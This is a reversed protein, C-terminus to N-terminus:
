SRRMMGVYWRLLDPGWVYVLVGVPALFTGFPLATRRGGRGRAVLALGAVSGSLSALFITMLLGPWGLFAGLMAALKVDGGGMGEVGTLKHYGWGLGWLLGYGLAAGVIAGWLTVPTLFSALIGLAIGPLTIVDPIIRHDWDILTVVIMASAFVLAPVLEWSAGFRWALGLYILATIAEVVPYRASIRARCSRCRGGLWLWALVPVNDYPAIPTGCGPCSSPPFVVSRGLPLRYICVNLFSGIVAGFLAAVAPVFWIPCAATM